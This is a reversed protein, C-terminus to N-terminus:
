LSASIPFYNVVSHHSNSNGGLLQNTKWLLVDQLAKQRKCSLFQGVNMIKKRGM